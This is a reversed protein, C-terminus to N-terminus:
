AAALSTMRHTPVPKGPRFYQLHAFETKLGTFEKALEVVAHRVATHLSEPSAEARLNITLEGTDVPANIQRSLEPAGGRRVLNIV